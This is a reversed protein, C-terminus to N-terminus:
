DIYCVEGGGREGWLSQCVGKIASELRDFEVFIRVCLDEAVDDPM